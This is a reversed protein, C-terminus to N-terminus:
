RQGFVYSNLYEITAKHEGIEHALIDGITVIGRLQNQDVVPLHRIKRETMVDRCEDVSTDPRCVAIPSTMVKSVPTTAPDLKAAVVRRLIDRETFMGIAMEGEVVILGGVGLENMKTAADLVLCHAEISHVTGGKRNLIDQVNAM